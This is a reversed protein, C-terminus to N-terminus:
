EEDATAIASHSILKYRGPCTIEDDLPITGTEPGHMSLQGRNSEGPYPGCDHRVRLSESHWVLESVGFLSANRLCRPASTDKATPNYTNVQNTVLQSPQGVEKQDLPQLLLLYLSKALTM